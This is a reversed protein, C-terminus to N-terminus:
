RTVEEYPNNVGGESGIGRLLRHSAAGPDSRRTALVDRREACRKEGTLREVLESQPDCQRAAWVALACVGAALLLTPALTLVTWLSLDDIV